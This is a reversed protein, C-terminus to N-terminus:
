GGGDLARRIAAVHAPTTGCCGGVIRAGAAVAALAHAAMAGPTVPYTALGDRLTPLGANPKFVLPMGPAAAAIERLAACTAEPGTGCNAGIAAPAAPLGALCAVFGAPTFGPGHFSATLVYPMGGAAAATAAARIEVPDYMTEIWILDAGGARLSAVQAAFMAGLEAPAAGTPGVSGAVIVDRGAADAAARALGAAHRNLGAAAAALGHPRLRAATAGFSCTLLIDSGAAVFAAHLAAIADPRQLLWAEPPVGAPLGLAILASGIGGDALLPGSDALRRALV